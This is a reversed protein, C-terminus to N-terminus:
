TVDKELSGLADWERNNVKGMKPFIFFSFSKKNNLIVLKNGGLM